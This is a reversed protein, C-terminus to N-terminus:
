KYIWAVRLLLISFIVLVFITYIAYHKSILKAFFRRLFQFSYFFTAYRAMRIIMAVILFSFFPIGAAASEAIFIKYPIGSTPQFILGFPGFERLWNEVASIMSGYVYPTKRVFDMSIPLILGFITGALIGYFDYLILKASRKKPLFLMFVLLFEPAVFWFISEAFVWIAVMVSACPSWFYEEMLSTYSMKKTTLKKRNKLLFGLFFPAFFLIICVSIFFIQRLIEFFDPM